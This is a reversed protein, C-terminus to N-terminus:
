PPATALEILGATELWERSIDAITSPATSNAPRSRM